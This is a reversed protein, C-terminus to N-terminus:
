REEQICIDDILSHATRPRGAQGVVAKLKNREQQTGYDGLKM